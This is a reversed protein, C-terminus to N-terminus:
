NAVALPIVRPSDAAFFQAPISSAVSQFEKNVLLMCSLVIFLTLSSGISGLVAHAISIQLRLAARAALLATAPGHVVSYPGHMSPFLFILLVCLVAIVALECAIRIPLM